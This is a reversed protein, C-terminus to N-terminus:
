RAHETRSAPEGEAGQGTLWGLVNDLSIQHKPTSDAPGSSRASAVLEEETKSAAEDGDAYKGEELKLHEFQAHYVESSASGCGAHLLRPSEDASVASSAASSAASSGGKNSARRKRLAKRDEELALKRAELAREREHVHRLATGEKQVMGASFARPDPELHGQRVSERALREKAEARSRFCRERLASRLAERGLQTREAETEQESRIEAVEARMGAIMGTCAEAEMRTQELESRLKSSVEEERSLAARGAELAAESAALQESRDALQRRLDALQTSAAALEALSTVAPAPAPSGQPASVVAAAAPAATGKAAAGAAAGAAKPLFYDQINRGHDTTAAPRKGMHAPEPTGSSQGAASQLALGIPAPVPAAASDPTPPRKRKGASTGDPPSGSPSAAFSNAPTGGQARPSSSAAEEAGPNSLEARSASFGISFDTQM